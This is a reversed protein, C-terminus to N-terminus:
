VANAYVNQVDDMEELAEILGRLKAGDENSLPVTVKAEWGNENKVFAWTAAGVAALTVEHLSLLHKIEQSSRNKSDTLGEIILASGGPGYAEYLVEYLESAEASTGKKVARDITDKPMNEKKAKEIVARLGASAINGKARKSESTILRSLKSFVKSRKADESGKQRKIQAWKSHGSM